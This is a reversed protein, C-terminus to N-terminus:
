IRILKDNEIIFPEASNEDKFNKYREKLIEFIDEKEKVRIAQYPEYYNLKEVFLYGDKDKVLVGCHGIFLYDGDISDHIIVSILKAEESFNINKLHNKINKAHVDIDKTHQTKVRSFLKKFNELQTENFLKASKINDEDILISFDDINVDGFSIENKLLMFANIRCNSGAYDKKNNWLNMLSNIDYNQVENEFEDHLGKNKVTKNFDIVLNKFGQVSNKDINKELVDCVYDLNDSSMNSIGMAKNKCGALTFILLILIILSRIKILKM